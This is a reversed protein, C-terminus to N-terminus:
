ELIKNIINMQLAYEPGFFFDPQHATLKKSMGNYHLFRQYFDTAELNIGNYNDIAYHIMFVSDHEAYTQNAGTALLLCSSYCYNDVHLTIDNELLIDLIYLTLSIIGGSSNIVLRETEGEYVIEHMLSHVTTPLTFSGEFYVTTGDRHINPLPTSYNNLSVLSLILFLLPSFSSIM